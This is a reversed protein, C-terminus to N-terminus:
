ILFFKKILCHPVQMGAFALIRILGSQIRNIGTPSPNEKPMTKSNGGDWDGDWSTQKLVSPRSWTYNLTGSFYHSYRKQLTVDVGRASGFNNNLFVSYGFPNENGPDSYAPVYIPGVQNTTETTWLTVNIGYLNGIQHQFGIEYQVSKERELSNNGMLAVTRLTLERVEGTARYLDRYNPNQYFHGFNFHVVSKSTLPYAIGIRQSFKFKKKATEFDNYEIESTSIDQEGIPDLPDAYMTGGANSYDM